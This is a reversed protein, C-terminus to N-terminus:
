NIDQLLQRSFDNQVWQEVLAVTDGLLYDYYAGAPSFMSQHAEIEDMGEMTVPVWNADNDEKWHASPLLIFRRLKNANPTDSDQGSDSTSLSVSESFARYVTRNRSTSSAISLTHMSQESKKTTEEKVERRGTSSTYYNIFRLREPGHGAKELDTLRQYRRQLESHNRVGSAFKIPAGFASIRSKLSHKDARKKEKAIKKQTCHKIGKILGREPLDADNRWQANSIPCPHDPPNFNPDNCVAEFGLAKQQDVLEEPTEDNKQFLTALGASFVGPDLGLFPTDFNVLGLIKHKPKAGDHLLAVDAAMLGGMSHGLLIVDLDDAEHPSLWKSFQNVAAQFDGESKYRPYIRTHVVHSDTLLGTLAGHVQLPLDQFTTETGNFGHIYILLLRRKFNQPTDPGLMSLSSSSRVAGEYIASEM